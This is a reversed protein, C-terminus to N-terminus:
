TSNIYLKHLDVLTHPTLRGWASSHVGASCAAHHLVEMYVSTCLKRLFNFLVLPQFLDMIVIAHSTLM